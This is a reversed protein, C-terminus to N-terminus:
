KYVYLIGYITDVVLSPPQGVWSVMAMNERVGLPGYFAGDGPNLSWERGSQDLAAQRSKQLYRGVRGSLANELCRFTLSQQYFFSTAKKPPAFPRNEPAKTTLKLTDIYSYSISM